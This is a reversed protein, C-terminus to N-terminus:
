SVTKHIIIDEALEPLHRDNNKIIEKSKQTAKAGYNFLGFLFVSDQM